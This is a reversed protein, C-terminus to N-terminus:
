LGVNQPVTLYAYLTSATSAAWIYCFASTGRDGPAPDPLRTQLINNLERRLNWFVSLVGANKLFLFGVSKVELMFPTSRHANELILVSREHFDSFLALNAEDLAEIQKKLRDFVVRM